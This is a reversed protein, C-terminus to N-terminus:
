LDTSSIMNECLNCVLQMSGGLILIVSQNAVLKPNKILLAALTLHFLALSRIM